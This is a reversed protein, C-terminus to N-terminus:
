TIFFLFSFFSRLKYLLSNTKLTFIKTKGRQKETCTSMRLNERAKWRCILLCIFTLHTASTLQSGTMVASQYDHCKHCKILLYLSLLKYTILISILVQHFLVLAYLIRLNFTERKNTFFCGYPIMFLIKGAEFRLAKIFTLATLIIGTIKTGITEWTELGASRQWM